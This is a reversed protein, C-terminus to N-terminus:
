SELGDVNIGIIFWVGLNDTALLPANGVIIVIISSINRAWSYLGACLKCFLM